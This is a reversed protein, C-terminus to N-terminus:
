AKGSPMSPEPRLRSVPQSWSIPTSVIGDALWVFHGWTRGVSVPGLDLGGHRQAMGADKLLTPMWNILAYFIMLGMFYAVWLMSTGVLYPKSVVTGIGSRSQSPTVEHLEFSTAHIADVSIRRLVGRIREASARQAVMYRASEPLFALLLFALVLPMVGGWCSVRQALWFAPDDVGGLFGGFAAGLPFGCFM